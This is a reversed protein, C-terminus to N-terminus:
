GPSFLFPYSVVVVGGGKPQPFQMKMFKSEICKEVASNNMSTTKTQASSVSGDKAITFKIVIKGGLSNNKVLERQYCYKIQNMHRKIVEDILSRDLAGLIIPDGGPKGLGGTSKAGFDGGGSGYGSSGSGTGKTGLGGLGEATGGGGLGGGRGGLGGSGIQVGKTGILGGVGGQIDGSLGAQGLSAMSDDALAGMLGASEVVKRDLEQKKMEVKDGKAKEMKADKKGVKGEDGKAKKGEGADPDKPKPKNDLEEPKEMLLEVYRDDIEQADTRPVYPIRWMAIGVIGGFMLFLMMTAVFPYDLSLVAAAKKGAPAPKTYFVMGDVEVAVKTDDGVPVEYGNASRKAKGASVAEDFTFRQTGVDVFGDWGNAVNVTNGSIFRYEGKGPLSNAPVHFDSKWESECKSIFPPAMRALPAAIAPVPLLKWGMVRWVHQSEPGFTVSGGKDFVKSDLLVDGWIQSVELVKPRGKSSPDDSQSRVLIAMVEDSASESKSEPARSPAGAPTASVIARPDTAEDDANSPTLAPAAAAQEFVFERVQPASAIHTAEEDQFAAEVGFQIVIKLDGAEITDGAKLATNSVAAGNVKTGAASGLDFLHVAGNEVNVVAHLEALSTGPLSLLAAAGSGITVSEEVLRETRILTDGQSVQFTLTLSKKSESM